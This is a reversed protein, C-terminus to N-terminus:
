LWLLHTPKRGAVMYDDATKTRRWAVYGVYGTLALYIVVVISLIFLDNM